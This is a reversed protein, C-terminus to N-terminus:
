LKLSGKRWELLTTEAIFGLTGTSTSIVELVDVAKSSPLQLTYTAAWMRVYPNEHDLLVLLKDLQNSEKLSRYVSSIIRYCGKDKAFNFDCSEEANGKAICAEIFRELEGNM